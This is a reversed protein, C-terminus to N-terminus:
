PNSRAQSYLKRRLWAEDTVKWARSHRKCFPHPRPTRMHSWACTPCVLCLVQKALPVGCTGRTAGYLNHIVYNIPIRRCRSLVPRLSTDRKKTVKLANKAFSTFIHRVRTQRNPQKGVMEPSACLCIKYEGLFPKVLTEKTPAISNQWTLEFDENVKKKKTLLLLINKDSLFYFSLFVRGSYNVSCELFRTGKKWM